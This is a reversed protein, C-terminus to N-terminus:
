PPSGAPGPSRTRAAPCRWGDAPGMALAYTSSPVTYKFKGSKVTIGSPNESDSSSIDPVAAAGSVEVTGGDVTLRGGDRFTMGTLGAWSVSGGEGVLMEAGKDLTVSANSIPYANSVALITQGTVNKVFLNGSAAASDVRVAFDSRVNIRTAKDSSPVGDTWNDADHWSGSASKNWATGDSCLEGRANFKVPADNLTIGTVTGAAQGTVKIITTDDGTVIALIKGSAVSISAFEITRGYGVDLRANASVTLAGLTTETATESGPIELTGGALTIASSHALSEPNTVRLTGASVTTPGDYTNAGSLIWIGTGEKAIGLGPCVLDAAWTATEATSNKLTMVPSLNDEVTDITSNVVLPGTGAHEISFTAQSLTVSNAAIVHPTRGVHINRDTTEGPGTYILRARNCLYFNTCYGLRSQEGKLGFSSAQLASGSYIEIDGCLTNDPSDLVLTGTSWGDYDTGSSNFRIGVLHGSNSMNDIGRIHATRIVNLGYGITSSANSWKNPDSTNETRGGNFTFTGDGEIYIPKGKAGQMVLGGGYGDANIRFTCGEAVEVHMEAASTVLNCRTSLDTDLIFRGTQRFNTGLLSCSKAAGEFRIDGSGEFTFYCVSWGSFNGIYGIDHIVLTDSSNNRIIPPNDSLSSSTTTHMRGLAGVLVPVRAVDSAVEFVGLEEIRLVQTASTGFTYCGAGSGRVTVNSVSVFGDLDITQEASGVSFVVEAGFDGIEVGDPGVYRGPVIGGAWNAANTWSAIEGSGIWQVPEAAFATCACAWVATVISMLQKM